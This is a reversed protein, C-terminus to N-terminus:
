THLRMRQTAASPAIQMCRNKRLWSASVAASAALPSPGRRALHPGIMRVVYYYYLAFSIIDNMRIRKQLLSRQAFSTVFEDMTDIRDVNDGVDAARSM